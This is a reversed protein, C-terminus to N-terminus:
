SAFCRDIWCLVDQLLLSFKDFDFFFNRSLGHAHQLDLSICTGINPIHDCLRLNDCDVDGLKTPPCAGVRIFMKNAHM